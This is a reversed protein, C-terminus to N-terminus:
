RLVELADKKSLGIQVMLLRRVEISSVERSPHFAWRIRQYQDSHLWSHSGGRRSDPVERYGLRKMLLRKLEPARIAPFGTDGM